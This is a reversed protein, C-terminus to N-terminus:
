AAPAPDGAPSQAPDVAGAVIEDHWAYLLPVQYYGSGEARMRLFEPGNWYREWDSKSEFTATQVFKYRDDRNRHLFYSTAGYRQAVPAIGALLGELKDGRFVTAYWPIHVIGAM